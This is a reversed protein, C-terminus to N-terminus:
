KLEDTRTSDAIKKELDRAVDGLYQDRLALYKEAEDTSIYFGSGYMQSRGYSRIFDFQVGRFEGMPKTITDIGSAKSQSDWRILQNLLAFFADMDALSLEIRCITKGSAFTVFKLEIEDRSNKTLDMHWATDKEIIAKGASINKKYDIAEIAVPGDSSWVVGNAAARIREKGALAAATIRRIAHQDDLAKKMTRAEETLQKKEAAQKDRERSLTKNLEVVDREARQTETYLTAYAIGSIVLLAVLMVIALKEKM